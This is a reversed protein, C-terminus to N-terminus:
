QKKISKGRVLYTETAFDVFAIAASAALRAHRPELGGHSRDRGHGSGYLGRLEATKSTISALNSLLIRIIEAGKAEKPIGEPVLALATCLNKSLTNLNDTKGPPEGLDSLIAKCCSEILDKATGIALAPDSDVSSEIRRIESKMWNHSLVDAATKARLIREEFGSSSIVSYIARGAISDREVLKWNGGRSLQENFLEVMKLTMEKEPRALPHITECLFRTFEEDPCSLLAFRRDSFVWNMEWDFNNVCHQWIDDAANSFRWDESPYNELNYLRGLFEFDNLAGCYSIGELKFGDFINQRRERSILNERKM